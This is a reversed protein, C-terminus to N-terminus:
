TLVVGQVQLVEGWEATIQVDWTGIQVPTVEFEAQADLLLVHIPKREQSLELLAGAWRFPADDDESELDAEDLVMGKLRVQGASDIPHAELVVSISDIRAEIRQVTGDTSGKLGQVTTMPQPILQRVVTVAQEWLTPSPEAPPERFWSDTAARFAEATPEGWALAGLLGNHFHQVQEFRARCFPCATLHAHMDPTAEGDLVAFLDDERLPTPGICTTM